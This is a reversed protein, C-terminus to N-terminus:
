YYSVKCEDPYKVDDELCNRITDHGAGDSTCEYLYYFHDELVSCMKTDSHYIYSNCSDQFVLKCLTYCDELTDTPVIEIIDLNEDNCSDLTLDMCSYYSDTTTTPNTASTRFKTTTSLKPTTIETTFYKTTTKKDTSPRFM